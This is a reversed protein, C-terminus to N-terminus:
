KERFARSVQDYLPKVLFSVVTRPTTQVFAEVPMGPVLKVQGLRAIEEPSVAIRVTYFNFGTKPDATVDPSIRAITGNIEPTTQQNFNSFRMVATQGPRLQDIDQPQIKAEVILGDAEPVVIMIQQGPTVVGGVTHADLQHVRGTQPARLDVRKLQDEAAVRRESLEAIKARMDAMEKGVETRMNQDVQLIQLETETIKGKAQAIAATLQGREGAIRAADRELATVRTFQVLNQKWLDHVGKLEKTIWETEREKAAVQANYGGIEEQLQAVRERLQSKQGERAARRAEFLRGEGELVRALEPFGRSRAVLGSPFEISERGALEAEQRATRAALEDLGKVLIELNSRTQTEDLRLLLDGEQVWDGERVKLEGVVGGTPHQVKKWNSEVVLQGQAIVAGAFETTAAWGGFGVVLLFMTAFGIMLHRRISRRSGATQSM